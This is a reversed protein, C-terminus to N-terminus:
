LLALKTNDCEATASTSYHSVILAVFWNATGQPKHANYNLFKLRFFFPLSLLLIVDLVLTRTHASGAWFSSETTLVFASILRALERVRVNFQQRRLIKCCSARNHSAHKHAHQSSAFSPQQSSTPRKIVVVVISWVCWNKQQAENRETVVCDVCM